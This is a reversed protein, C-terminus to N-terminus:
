DKIAYKIQGGVNPNFGEPISTVGRLFLSGGVKPNFGKPISRLSDLGLSGGVSISFGEPLSFLGNLGLDGSVTPSFDEPISLLRNLYLHGGVTPHFGEPISTLGSLDLNGGVTPNFGEPISTLGRLDLDSKLAKKYVVELGKAYNASVVACAALNYKKGKSTKLAKLIIEEAEPDNRQAYAIYDELKLEKKTSSSLGYKILQEIVEDADIDPNLKEILKKDIETGSFVLKAKAVSFEIEYNEEAWECFKKAILFFNTDFFDAFGGAQWDTPLDQASQWETDATGRWVCFTVAEKEICPDGLVNLLDQPIGDYIHKTDVGSVLEHWFGKMICGANTFIVFLFDGSGPDFKFVDATDDWEIKQHWQDAEDFGTMMSLKVHVEWLKKFEDINEPLNKHKVVVNM